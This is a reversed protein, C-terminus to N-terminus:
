TVSSAASEKAPLATSSPEAASKRSAGSEGRVFGDRELRHLAPYLAGEDVKLAEDAERHIRRSIELGHLAGESLAQLVLLSLTGYLTGAEVKTM